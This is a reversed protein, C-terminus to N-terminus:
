AHGGHQRVRGRTSYVGTRDSTGGCDATGSASFWVGQVQEHALSSRPNTAQTQLMVYSLDQYLPNAIIRDPSVLKLVTSRGRLVEVSVVSGKPTLAGIPALCESVGASADCVTVTDGVRLIVKAPATLFTLAEVADRGPSSKSRLRALARQRSPRSAVSQTRHSLFVKDETISPPQGCKFYAIYYSMLELLAYGHRTSPAVQTNESYDNWTILQVWEAGSDIAIQWTNRLNTTNESEDYTEDRPRYDQMAVPQMWVDSKSHVKRVTDLPFGSVPSNSPSRPGWASMGYSIPAFKDINADSPDLFLPVLAIDINRTQMAAMFDRWWAVPRNEALYPSVVLRGDALRFAAPSAALLAIEDAMGQPSMDGLEGTMDPMLMIKFAPDAAEAAQLMMSPIPAIWAGPSDHAVLIDVSFGDIGASMAQGIETSLDQERWDQEPRPARPLPRDRLFGGYEAHIGREGRPSLYDTSYYDSAADRNDISIPYPPFYHAFVMKATGATLGSDSVDVRAPEPVLLGGVLLITLICALLPSRFSIRRLM